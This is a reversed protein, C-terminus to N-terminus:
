ATHGEHDEPADGAKEIKVGSGLLEGVDRASAATVSIILQKAIHRTAAAPNAADILRRTGDTMIALYYRTTATM